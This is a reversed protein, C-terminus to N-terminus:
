YKVSWFWAKFLAIEIGGTKTQEPRIIKKGVQLTMEVFKKSKAGGGTLDQVKLNYCFGL